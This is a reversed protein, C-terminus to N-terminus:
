TGHQRMKDAPSPCCNSFSSQRAPEGLLALQLMSGAGALKLMTNVGQNCIEGHKAEEHKEHHLVHRWGQSYEVVATIVSDEEAGGRKNRRHAPEPQQTQLFDPLRPTMQLMVLFLFPCPSALYSNSTYGRMCPLMQPKSLSQHGEHLFCSCPPKGDLCLLHMCTPKTSGPQALHTCM